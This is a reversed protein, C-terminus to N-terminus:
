ITSYSLSSAISLPCALRAPNQYGLLLVACKNKLAFDIIPVKSPRLPVHKFDEEQSSPERGRVAELKKDNDQPSMMRIRCPDAKGSIVPKGLESVSATFASRKITQLQSLHPPAVWAQTGVLLLGLTITVKM